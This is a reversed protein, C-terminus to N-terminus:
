WLYIKFAFEFLLLLFEELSLSKNEKWSFEVFDSNAKCFLLGVTNVVILSTNSSFM